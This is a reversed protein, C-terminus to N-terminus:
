FATVAERPGSAPSPWSGRSCPRHVWDKGGARVLRLDPSFLAPRTLWKVGLKGGLESCRWLLVTNRGPSPPEVRPSGDIAKQHGRVRTRGDNWGFRLDATLPSLAAAGQRALSSTLVWNSPTRKRSGLELLVRLCCSHCGPVAGVRCECNLRGQVQVQSSLDGM